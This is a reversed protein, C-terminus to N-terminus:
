RKLSLVIVSPVKLLLLLPTCISLSAAKRPRLAPRGFRARPTRRRRGSCKEAHVLPGRVDKFGEGDRQPSKIQWGTLQYQLMCLMIRLLNMDLGASLRGCNVGAELWDDEPTMQGKIRRVIPASLLKKALGRLDHM